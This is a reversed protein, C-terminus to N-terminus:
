IEKMQHTHFTTCIWTTLIIITNLNILLSITYWVTSVPSILFFSDDKYFSQKKEIGKNFRVLRHQILSYDM